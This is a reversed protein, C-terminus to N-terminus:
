NLIEKVMEIVSQKFVPISFHKEYVMRAKVGISHLEERKEICLRLKDALDQVNESKFIFGNEENSLYSATGTASSVLCPVSHMMAEAAVTPMPDERSPCVLVDAKNLIENIQNRNMTGTVIVRPMCSIEQKIQLAMASSDQGVIYFVAKSMIDEPLQKIAKILIDQGKRSEIYGITVFCVREEQVKNSNYQRAQLNTMDDVGYILQLVPLNKVYSCIAQKPVPGVSTVTLNTRDINKLLEKDVGDYFFLSDHLWWIVPINCDRDSLFVYYNITSCLILSFNNVWECDNMTFVQLNNDIIVPIDSELIKGKLPGDIMSGFVVDYGYEKLVLAVHYLAIAPGGLTLDQSLLLIKNKQNLAGRQSLNDKRINGYVKIEKKDDKVSFIKYLDYFHYIKKEDVGCEILQSKMSKVYFSLIIIADYSLKLGEKVSLVPKNDILTNQKYESNDIFAIIDEPNFWKKYRNYYDGTGFILIKM